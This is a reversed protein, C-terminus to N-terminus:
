QLYSNRRKDRPKSNFLGTMRAPRGLLPVSFSTGLVSHRKMYVKPVERDMNSNENMDKRKSISEQVNVGIRPLETVMSTSEKIGSSTNFTNFATPLKLNPVTLRRSWQPAEEFPKVIKGQDENVDYSEFIVGEFDEDNRADTEDVDDLDVSVIRHSRHLQKDNSRGEIKPLLSPSECERRELDAHSATNETSFSKARVLAQDMLAKEHILALHAQWGISHAPFSPLTYCRANRRRRLSNEVVEYDRNLENKAKKIKECDKKLFSITKDYRAHERDLKNNLFSNQQLAKDTDHRLMKRLEHLDSSPPKDAPTGKM